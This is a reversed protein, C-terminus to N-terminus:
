LPTPFNLGVWTVKKGWPDSMGTLQLVVLFAVMSGFMLGPTSPIYIERWMEGWKPRCHRWGAEIKQCSTKEDRKDSDILQTPRHSGVLFLSAVLVSAIFAHTYM